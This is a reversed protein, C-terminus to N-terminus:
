IRRGCFSVRNADIVHSGPAADFRGAQLRLLVQQQETGAATDTGCGGLDGPAPADAHDTGVPAHRVRIRWDM